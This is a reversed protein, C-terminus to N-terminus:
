EMLERIGPSPEEGPADGFDDSKYGITQAGRLKRLEGLIALLLDNSMLNTTGTAIDYESAGSIPAHSINVYELPVKAENALIKLLEVDVDRNVTFKAGCPFVTLSSTTNQVRRRVVIKALGLFKAVVKITGLARLAVHKLGRVPLPRPRIEREFSERAIRQLDKSEIWGGGGTIRRM